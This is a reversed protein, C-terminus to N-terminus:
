EKKEQDELRQNKEFDEAMGSMIDKSIQYLRQVKPGYKAVFALHEPKAEPDRKIVQIADYLDGIIQHTTTMEAVEHWALDVQKRTVVTPDELGTEELWREPLKTVKGLRNM